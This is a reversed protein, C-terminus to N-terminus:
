IGAKPRTGVDWCEYKRGLVRQTMVRETHVVTEGRSQGEVYADIEEASKEDREFVLGSLADIPIAPPIVHDNAVGKPRKKSRKEKKPM